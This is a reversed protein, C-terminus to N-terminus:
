MSERERHKGSQPRVFCGVKRALQQGGHRQAVRGAQFAPLPQSTGTVAGQVRCHPISAEEIVTSTQGLGDVHLFFLQENKTHAQTTKSGALEKM